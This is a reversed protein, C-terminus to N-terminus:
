LGSKIERTKESTPMRVGSPTLWYRTPINAPYGTHVVAVMGPSTESGSTAVTSKELCAVSCLGVGVRMIALVHIITLNRSLWAVFSRAWRVSLSTEARQELRLQVGAKVGYLM